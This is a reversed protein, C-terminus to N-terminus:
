HLKLERRWYMRIDRQKFLGATENTCLNVDLDSSPLKQPCCLTYRTSTTNSTEGATEICLLRTECRNWTSVSKHIKQFGIEVDTNITKPNTKWERWAPRVKMVKFATLARRVYTMKRSRRVYNIQMWTLSISCLTSNIIQIGKLTHFFCAVTMRLTFTNNGSYFSQQARQIPPQTPRWFRDAYKTLSFCIRGRGPNSGRILGM